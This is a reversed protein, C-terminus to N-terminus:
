TGGSARGSRTYRSYDAFMLLWSVQYGVVIDLGRWWSMPTAPVTSAPIPARLCAVTLLVAVILMLPVALRDARAVARPGRWVVVTALLGLAVAWMTPSGVGAARACASAAIVNNLAIWAFNSVYLLIAVIAAGSSGLAPRAAIVSPVRLRSGIPALAAVLVAGAVSGIAILTM